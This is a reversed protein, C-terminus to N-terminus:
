CVSHELPSLFLPSVLYYFELIEQGKSLEKGQIIYQAKVTADKDCPIKENVKMLKLYSNSKSYFPSISHYADSYDPTRIGPVYSYKERNKKSSAQLHVSSIWNSTDLSFSALGDKNTILTFKIKNSVSLYVPANAVPKDDPGTMKVKGEFNIGSKYAQAVDIFMLSRIVTKFVARGSGELTVGTGDEELEASVEFSDQHTNKNLAFGVINVLKTACGTRDTRMAYTKCINTATSRWSYSYSYANRCIVAKVSGDVPKGYTYKGCIKLTIEEDAISIVSPLHVTVEFKPLVPARDSLITQGPKYIPKDTQIIHIFGPPVILIKTEKNLSGSRKSVHVKITAVTKTRVVPVKFNNCQYFDNIVITELLVTSRSKTLLSITLTVPETAGNLVACFTEKTGGTVQSSVTVAFTIDNSEVSAARQLFVCALAVVLTQLAHAM